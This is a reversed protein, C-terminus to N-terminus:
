ASRHPRILSRGPMSVSRAPRMPGRRPTSLRDASTSLNPGPTRRKRAQTGVGREQVRSRVHALEALNAFHLAGLVPLFEGIKVTLLQLGQRASSIDGSMRITLIVFGLNLLYSGVVLLQSVADALGADGGFVGTLFTRGSRTLARGVGLTIAISIVLYIIYTVIVGM